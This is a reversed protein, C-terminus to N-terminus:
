YELVEINELENKVFDQVEHVCDIYSQGKVHNLIFKLQDMDDKSIIENM